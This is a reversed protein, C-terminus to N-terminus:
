EQTIAMEERMGWVKGFRSKTETVKRRHKSIVMDVPPSGELVGSPLSFWFRVWAKWFGLWERSWPLVGKLAMTRLSENSWFKDPIINLM